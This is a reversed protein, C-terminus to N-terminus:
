PASRRVIRAHLEGVLLIERKNQGSVCGGMKFALTVHRCTAVLLGEETRRRDACSPRRYVAWARAACNIVCCQELYPADSYNM